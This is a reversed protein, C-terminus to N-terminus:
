VTSCFGNDLKKLNPLICCTNQNQIAGVAVQPARVVKGVVSSWNPPWSGVTAVIVNEHSLFHSKWKQAHEHEVYNCDSLDISDSTFNSVRALPVGDESFFKQKVGAGNRLIAVEVLSVKEWEAAM